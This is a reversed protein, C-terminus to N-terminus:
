SLLVTLYADIAQVDIRPEVLGSALLRELESAVLLDSRVAQDLPKVGLQDRPLV